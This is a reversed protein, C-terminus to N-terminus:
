SRCRVALADLELVLRGPPAPSGLIVHREDEGDPTRQYGMSGESGVVRCRVLDGLGLEALAASISRVFQIWEPFCAELRPQLDGGAEYGDGPGTRIAWGIREGPEEGGDGHAADDGAPRSPALELGEDQVRAAEMLLSTLSMTVNPEPGGEPLPVETFQGGQWGVMEFFAEEGRKSDTAAFVLDGQDFVLLGRREGHLVEVARKRRSLALLQALDYLDLGGVHGEWGTRRDNLAAEIAEALRELELPKEMFRMAGHRYAARRLDESGFATIVLVPLGPDLRRAERILEVGDMGPLRIDTILVEVDGSRLVELAEEATPAGIPRYRGGRGALFTCLNRRLKEEDEVILVTRGV